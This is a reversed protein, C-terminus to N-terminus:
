HLADFMLRENVGDLCVCVSEGLVTEGLVGRSIGAQLSVFEIAGMEEYLM